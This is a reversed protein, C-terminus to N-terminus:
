ESAAHQFGTGHGLEHMWSRNPENYRLWQRCYTAGASYRCTGVYALGAWNCASPAVEQPLLYFRPPPPPPPPPTRTVVGLFPPRPNPARTPHFKLNFRSGCSWAHHRM